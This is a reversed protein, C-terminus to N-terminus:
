SALLLRNTSMTSTSLSGLNYLLNYINESFYGEGQSLEAQRLKIIDRLRMELTLTNGFIAILNQIIPQVILHFQWERVYNNATHKILAHSYLLSINREQVEQCTIEILRTIAYEMVNSQLIFCSGNKELLARRRLSELTELLKLQSNLSVLDQKLQSKSVPEGNVALWYVLEKELSNLREFQQDFLDRTDGFVKKEENLFATVKGDFLDLITTAVSKIMLGNGDYANVLSELESSSGEIGKLSLLQEGEGEQFGTLRFTRVPLSEGELPIMEKPKERSTLLLCSQHDSEGIRQFFEGYKEYGQQYIGLQDKDQFLSEVNDFVLLCRQQSLQAVVDNILSSTNQSFNQDTEDDSFFQMFNGLLSDLSPANQLSRWIIYDFSQQVRKALKISLCTKGVGGMGLLTILRCDEELIWGELTALEQTRGFFTAISVAEGWDQHGSYSRPFCYDSEKLKLDFALFLRELSRKDVGERCGLIRKITNLDLNTYESLEELTYRSGLKHKKEAKVRNKELKNWGSDTLTVGRKRKQPNKKSQKM